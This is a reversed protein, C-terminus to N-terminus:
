SADEEAISIKSGDILTLQGSTVVRDGVELTAEVATVDSQINLVTVATKKVHDGEVLYVFAEDDEEILASTPILLTDSITEETVAISAVMGAKWDNRNEATVRISFMGTEGPLLAKEIITATSEEDDYDSFRIGVDQNLEFLDANAATVDLHITLEALNVIMLVPEEPSIMKGESRYALNTVQGNSPATIEVEMGTELSIITLLLDDEEVHDFNEVHVQDIEGIMPVIVPTIEDPTARGFFLKEISVDDKIVEEVEVTIVRDERDETDTDDNSCAVFLLLSALLIIVIKKM